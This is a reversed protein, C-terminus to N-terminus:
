DVKKPRGRKVVREVEDFKELIEDKIEDLREDVETEDKVQKVFDEAKKSIDSAVDAVELKVLKVLAEKKAEDTILTSGHEKVADALNAKGEAKRKADEKALLYVAGASLSVLAPIFIRLKRM